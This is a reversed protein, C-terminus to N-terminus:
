RSSACVQPSGRVDCMGYRQRYCSQISFNFCYLMATIKAATKTRIMDPANQPVQFRVFVLLEQPCKKLLSFYVCLQQTFTHPFVDGTTRELAFNSLHSFDAYFIQAFPLVTLYVQLVQSPIPNSGRFSLVINVIVSKTTFLSM